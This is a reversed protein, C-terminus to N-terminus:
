QLRLEVIRDRRILFVNLGNYVHKAKNLLVDEFFLHFKM